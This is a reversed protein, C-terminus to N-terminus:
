YTAKAHHRKKGRGSIQGGLVRQGEGRVGEREGSAPLPLSGRLPLALPPPAHADRNRYQRADGVEVIEVRQKGLGPDLQDHDSGPSRQRHVDGQHDQRSRLRRDAIKFEQAALTPVDIKQSMPALATADETEAAAILHQSLGDGIAKARLPSLFGDPPQPEEFDIRDEPLSLAEDLSGTDLKRGARGDFPVFHVNAARGPRFELSGNEAQNAAGIAANAAIASDGSAIQVAKEGAIQEPAGKKLPEAGIAALDGVLPLDVRGEIRESIM